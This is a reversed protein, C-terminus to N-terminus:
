KEVQEGRRKIEWLFVTAASAANLSEMTNIPIIAKEDSAAIAEDSLGKGENGIWVCVPGRLDAEGIGKSDPALCAAISRVGKDKLFSHMEKTSSFTRIPIGALAGMTARVTKPGFPDACEMLLVGDFDFASATRIVTGVNGPDQVRELAILRETKILPKLAHVDSVSYVSVIGQSGKETTVKEFASDTLLFLEPNEKGLAEEIRPRYSAAKESLYVKRPFLGMKCFDFFLTMGEAAFAGERDRFKKDALSAAFKVSPNVRSEIKKWDM